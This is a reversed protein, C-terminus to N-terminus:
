SLGTEFYRGLNDTPAIVSEDDATDTAGHTYWYSSRVGPEPTRVFVLQRSANSPLGKLEVRTFVVATPGTPSVGAAGTAGTPGIPGGPTVKSGSPIIAGPAANGTAGTNEVTVATASLIATVVFSGANEIFLSQGLAIFSGDVVDIDATADVAPMTFQASLTTFANKGNIGNTGNIGDAGAPGPVAIISDSDLEDCCCDLATPLASPM